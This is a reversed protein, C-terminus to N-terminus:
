NGYKKKIENACEEAQEKISCVCGLLESLAGDKTKYADTEYYFDRISLSGIWRGREKDQAIDVSLKPSFQRGLNWAKNNM